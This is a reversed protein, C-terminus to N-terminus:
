NLPHRKLYRALDNMLGLRATQMEVDFAEIQWCFYRYCWLATIAIPLGIASPMMAQALREFVAAICVSREAGCAPFSDPISLTTAPLGLFPATAAITALGDLGRKMQRHVGKEARESARQVADVIQTETLLIMAM